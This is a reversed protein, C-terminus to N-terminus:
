PLVVANYGDNLLRQSMANADARSAFPGVQVHILNDDSERRATVAYGHKRLAGMLVNADEVHSVAAIQVMIGAGPPLAPQVQATTTGPTTSPQAGIAPRVGAENEAATPIKESAATSATAPESSSSSAAQVTPPAGGAGPKHGAAAEATLTQGSATEKAAAAMSAGSRRGATYGVGFCIGCLLLLGCVFAFVMAPGLTLEVDKRPESFELEEDRDVRPM